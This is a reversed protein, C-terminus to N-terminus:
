EHRYEADIVPGEDRDGRGDRPSFPRRDDLAGRHHAVVNVPSLHLFLKLAAVLLAFDDLQGLGPIFDPAFDVPSIVYLLALAPLLKTWVPVGPDRLLRQALRVDALLTRLLRLRWLWSRM